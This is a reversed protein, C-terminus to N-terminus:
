KALIDKYELRYIHLFTLALILAFPGLILGKFGITFMSGLIVFFTLLPYIHATGGILYPKVVNDVTSIVALGWAILFTAAVWHGTVFMVIVIPVWIIAAGLYPIISFFATVTGWFVPNGIGALFYGVGAIAGQMIAAGFIGITIAKSITSLKKFLIQQYKSPMPLISKFYAVIKDGDRLFYFVSLIMILVDIIIISIQKAVNTTQGVIFTGIASTASSLTSIFEARTIPSYKEIKEVYDGIISDRIMEPFLHIDEIDYGEIQKQVADVAEVADSTLSSVLLSIPGLVIILVLLTSLFASLWKLKGGFLWVWFKQLPAAVTAIIAAMIIPVLFPYIM